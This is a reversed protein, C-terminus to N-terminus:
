EYDDVGRQEKRARRGSMMNRPRQRGKVSSTGGPVFQGESAVLSGIMKEGEVLADLMAAREGEKRRRKTVKAQDLRTEMMKAGEAIAELISAPAQKEERLEKKGQSMTKVTEDQATVGSEIAKAGDARDILADAAITRKIEEEERQERAKPQDLLSEMVKTGEVIAELISAPAQKEMQKKGQKSAHDAQPIMASEITRKAGELITDLRPETSPGVTKKQKNGSIKLSQIAKMGELLADSEAASAMAKNRKKRMKKRYNKGPGKDGSKGPNNPADHLTCSSSFPVSLIRCLLGVRASRLEVGRQAAPILHCRYQIHGLLARAHAFRFARSLMMASNGQVM